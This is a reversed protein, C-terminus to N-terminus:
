GVIQMNPLLVAKPGRYNGQEIIEKSLYMNGQVKFMNGSISGGTIIHTEKGDFHRALRFEGGFDGTTADMFFNSFILIEFYPKAKMDADYSLTGPSVEINRINGTPEIGLYHAFRTDGHYTKVVGCDMIPVKKLHLGSGDYPQSFPSSKRKPDLVISVSDGRIEGQLSEGIKARSKKAYVDTASCQQTYFMFFSSLCNDRLIVDISAIPIAKKAIAREKTNKLQEGLITRLSDESVTGQEIYGYLEVEEDGHAESIVEAENSVKKYSVDIGESNIIEVESKSSFFEASNINVGEEKLGYVTKQMRLLYEMPPTEIDKVEIEKDNSPKPLPYWENKVFGAAFLAESIKERLVEESDQPSIKCTASGRYKKGDVSFDKYITLNTKVVNKGRNMDLKDKIFFAEKSELKSIVLSYASMEKQEQLLKIITNKM